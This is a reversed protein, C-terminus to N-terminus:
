DERRYVNVPRRAFSYSRTSSAPFYLTKGYSGPIKEVGQRSPGGAVLHLLSALDDPVSSRTFRCPPAAAPRVASYLRSAARTIHHRTTFGASIFREYFISPRPARQDLKFVANIRMVHVCKPGYHQTDKSMLNMEFGSRSRARLMLSIRKGRCSKCGASKDPEM